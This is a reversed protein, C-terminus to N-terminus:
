LDELHSLNDILLGHPIVGWNEVEKGLTKSKGIKHFAKADVQLAVLVAAALLVLATRWWVSM